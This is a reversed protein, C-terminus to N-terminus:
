GMLALQSTGGSWQSFWRAGNPRLVGLVVLLAPVLLLVLLLLLLLLLLVLLLLLPTAM